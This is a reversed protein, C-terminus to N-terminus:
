GRTRWQALQEARQQRRRLEAEARRDLGPPMEPWDHPANDPMVLAVDPAAVPELDALPPRPTEEEADLGPLDAFLQKREAEDDVAKTIHAVIDRFEQYKAADKRYLAALRDQDHRLRDHPDMRIPADAPDKTRGTVQRYAKDVKGTRDMEEVLGAYRKPHAKAEDVVKEIKRVTEGSVGAFEGIKDRTKGTASGPCVKGITMREKAAAKEEPELARRIADIESPLFDKRHTNEAYEGRVIETLDVVRVPVETWGLQKCAEIRRAGAILVGDPNVVVPHLLGIDKISAALATVDGLDHRHRQNINIDAIPRTPYISM